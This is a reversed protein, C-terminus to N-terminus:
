RTAASGAPRVKMNELRRLNESIPAALSEALEKTRDEPFESVLLVVHKSTQYAAVQYKGSVATQLGARLGDDRPIVGNKMATADRDAILLSILEDGETFGFHVFKRGALDCYHAVRLKMNRAYLKAVEDLGALTPNYEVAKPDLDEPEPSDKYHYSCSDHEDATEQMLSESLEAAQVSPLSPVEIYLYVALLLASAAFTLPFRLSFIKDILDRLERCSM